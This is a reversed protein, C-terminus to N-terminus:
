LLHEYVAKELDRWVQIALPHNFPELQTTMAAAIGTERDIWWRGNSAGSWMLSNKRRKGPSDELNLIGSLGFDIPAHPPDIEPVYFDWMEGATANALAEHETDTLNPTFMLERTSDKLLEGRLLAGLFKIYDSTTTFLGAGGSYMSFETPWPPTGPVLLDPDCTSPKAWDVIRDDIGPITSINFSTSTMGLPEFIHEKMYEALTQGTIAELVLGAWDLSTGYAWGEGPAFKLPNTFGELSWSMANDTRNVSESWKM